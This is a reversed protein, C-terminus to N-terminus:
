VFLNCLLTFLFMWRGSSFATLFPFFIFWFQLLNNMLKTQHNRVSSNKGQTKERLNCCMTARDVCDGSACINGYLRAFLTWLDKNNQSNQLTIDTKHLAEQAVYYRYNTIKLSRPTVGWTGYLPARCPNRSHLCLFNKSKLYGLVSWSHMKEGLYQLFSVIKKLVHSLNKKPCLIEGM